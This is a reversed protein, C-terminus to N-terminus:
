RLLRELAVRQAPAGFEAREHALRHNACRPLASLASRSAEVDVIDPRKSLRDQKHADRASPPDHSGYSPCLGLVAGLVPAEAECPGYGLPFATSSCANHRVANQRSARM